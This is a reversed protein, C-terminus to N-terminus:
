SPRAWGTLRYWTEVGIIVGFSINGWGSSGALYFAGGVVVTALLFWRSKRSRIRTEPTDSLPVLGGRRWRRLLEAYVAFHTVMM